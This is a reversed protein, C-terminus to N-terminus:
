DWWPETHEIKGLDLGVAHAIESYYMSGLEKIHVETVRNSAYKFYNVFLRNLYLWDFRDGLDLEKVSFIDLPPTLEVNVGSQRCGEAIMLVEFCCLDSLVFEEGCKIRRNLDLVNLWGFASCLSKVKILGTDQPLDMRYRKASHFIDINVSSLWKCPGVDRLWSSENVLVDNFPYIPTGEHLCVGVLLLKALEELNTKYEECFADVCENSCNMECVDFPGVDRHDNHWIVATVFATPKSLNIEFIVEDLKSLKSIEYKIIAFPCSM